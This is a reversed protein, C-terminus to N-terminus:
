VYWNNPFQQVSLGPRFVGRRLYRRVRVRASCRWLTQPPASLGDSRSHCIFTISLLLAAQLFAAFLCGSRHRVKFRVDSLPFRLPLRLHPSPAHPSISLSHSSAMESLLDPVSRFSCAAKWICLLELDSSEIKIGPIREPDCVWMWVGRSVGASASVCVCVCANIQLPLSLPKVKM